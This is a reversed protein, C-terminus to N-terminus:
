GSATSDLSTRGVAQSEGIGMRRFADYDCHGRWAMMGDARWMEVMVGHNPQYPVLRITDGTREDRMELFPGRQRVSVYRGDGLHPLMGRTAYYVGLVRWRLRRVSKLRRPSV